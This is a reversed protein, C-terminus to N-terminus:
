FRKGASIKVSLMGKEPHIVSFPQHEFVPELSRDVAHQLAYLANGSPADTSYFHLSFNKRLRLKGNDTATPVFISKDVFETDLLKIQGILFRFFQEHLFNSSYTSHFTKCTKYDM